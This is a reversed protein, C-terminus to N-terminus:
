IGEGGGSAKLPSGHRLALRVWGGPKKDFRYTSECASCRLYYSHRKKSRDPRAKLALRPQRCHPCERSSLFPLKVSAHSVPKALVTRGSINRYRKRCRSCEWLRSGNSKLPSSIIRCEVSCDKCRVRDSRIRWSGGKLKVPNAKGTNSWFRSGCRPCKFYWHEGRRASYKSGVLRVRHHCELCRFREFPLITRPTRGRIRAFSEFSTRIREALQILIQASEVYQSPVVGDVREGKRLESYPISMIAAAIRGNMDLVRKAIRIKSFRLYKM